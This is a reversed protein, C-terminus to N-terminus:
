EGEETAPDSAATTHAVEQSPTDSPIAPIYQQPIAHSDYDTPQPQLPIVPAAPQPPQNQPQHQLPPEAAERSEMYTTLATKNVFSRGDYGLSGNENVTTGPPLQGYKEATDVHQIGNHSSINVEPPHMPRPNHRNDRLAETPHSSRSLVAASRQEQLVNWNKFKQDQAGIRALLGAQVQQELTPQSEILMGLGDVVPQGAQVEVPAAQAHGSSFSVPYSHPNYYGIFINPVATKALPNMRNPPHRIVSFATTTNDRFLYLPSLDLLGTIGTLVELDDFAEPISIAAEPRAPQGMPRYTSVLEPLLDTVAAIWGQLGHLHELYDSLERHFAARDTDRLLGWKDGWACVLDALAPDFSGHWKRLTKTIGGWPNAM